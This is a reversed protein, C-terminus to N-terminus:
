PEALGALDNAPMTDDECSAQALRLRRLAELVQVLTASSRICHRRKPSLRKALIVENTWRQSGM